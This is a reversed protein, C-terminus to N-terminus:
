NNIDPFNTPPSAVSKNNFNIDKSYGILIGKKNQTGKGGIDYRLVTSIANGNKLLFTPGIYLIADTIKANGKFKYSNIESTGNKNISFFNDSQLLFKVNQSANFIFSVRLRLTDAIANFARKYFLEARQEQLFSRPSLHKLFGRIQYMPKYTDKPGGSGYFRLLNEIAADWNASLPFNLKNGLEAYQLNPVWGVHPKNNSELFTDKESYFNVEISSNETIGFENDLELSYNLLKNRADNDPRTGLNGEIQAAFSYFGKGPTFNAFAPLNATISAFGFALLTRSIINKLSFM